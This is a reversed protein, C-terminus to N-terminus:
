LVIDTKKVSLVEIRYGDEVERFPLWRYYEFEREEKTVVIIKSYIEIKKESILEEMARHDEPNNGCIKGFPTLKKKCIRRLIRKKNKEIEQRYTLRNM